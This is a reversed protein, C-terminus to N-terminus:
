KKRSRYNYFQTGIEKNVGGGKKGRKERKRDNERESLRKAGIQKM